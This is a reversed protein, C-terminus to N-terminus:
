DQLNGGASSGVRRRSQDGATDYQAKALLAAVRVVLEDPDFPKRLYDSAGAQIAIAEDDQGDRATLMLVPTKYASRSGRIDRLADVGSREPMSCDLMVLDPQKLEVVQKVAKGNPLAGVVHGASELALRVLDVVLEDDDAIIIRAM